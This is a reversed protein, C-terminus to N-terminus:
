TFLFRQFFTILPLITKFKPITKIRITITNRPTNKICPELYTACVSYANDKFIM